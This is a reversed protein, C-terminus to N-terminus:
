ELMKRGWVAEQVNESEGAGMVWVKGYLHGLFCCLAWDSLGTGWTIGTTLRLGEPQRTCHANRLM